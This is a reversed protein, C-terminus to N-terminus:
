RVGKVPLIALAGAVAFLAAVLYLATYNDGEGSALLPMALFIPAMAPALSQPLTNAINFVGLDKSTDDPNPLVQSVLALDVALYVGIGVGCVAVGVLFADFSAVFAITATGVGFILASSWVFVQRCGGTRDSLWGSAVSFILLGANLVLTAIFVLRTVREQSMGLHDILYFVNYTTLTAVAMNLLFRSLWAWATRIQSRIILSLGAM